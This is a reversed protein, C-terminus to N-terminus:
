FAEVLESSKLNVCRRQQKPKWGVVNAAQGVRNTNCIGSYRQRFSDKLRIIEEDLNTLIASNSGLLWPIFHTHLCGFSHRSDSGSTIHKGKAQGLEKSEAAVHLCSVLPGNHSSFINWPPNFKNQTCMWLESHHVLAIKSSDWHLSPLSSLSYKFKM